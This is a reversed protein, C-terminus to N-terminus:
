IPDGTCGFGAVPTYKLWTESGTGEDFTSPNGCNSGFLTCGVCDKKVVCHVQSSTFATHGNSGPAAPGLGNYDEDVVVAEQTGTPCVNNICPTFECARTFTVPDYTQRCEYPFTATCAPPPDQAALSVSCGLFILLFIQCKM